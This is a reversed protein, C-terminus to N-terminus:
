KSQLLPIDVLKNACFIYSTALACLKGNSTFAKGIPVNPSIISDFFGSQM